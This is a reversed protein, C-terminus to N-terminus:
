AVDPICEAPATRSHVRIALTDYQCNAIHLAQFLVVRPMIIVKAVTIANPLPSLLLQALHGTQERDLGKSRVRESGM